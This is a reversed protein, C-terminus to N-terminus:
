YDGKKPQLCLLGEERWMSVVQDRDEFVVSIQSRDMQGLAERKIIYDQRHDGDKRMHLIQVAKSYPLRNAILWNETKHRIREPRGTVYVIRYILSLDRVLEIMPTLPEDEDCAEFFADWDPREQRIHIL